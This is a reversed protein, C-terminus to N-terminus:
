DVHFPFDDHMKKKEPTKPALSIQLLPALIRLEFLHDDFWKIILSRRRKSNRPFEAKSAASVLQALAILSDRTLSGDPIVSELITVAESKEPRFDGLLTQSVEAENKRHSEKRKM